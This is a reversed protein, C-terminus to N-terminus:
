VVSNVDGTQDQALLSPQGTADVVNRWFTSDLSIVKAGSTVASLPVHTFRGLWLGVVMGTKGAMAAHVAEEALQGCFIADAANAPAARIIYSPDIYKLNIGLEALEKQFVGKLFLGIDALKINGAADREGTAQLHRQGAGEAVVVLAHDRRSLRDRLFQLIGRQGQLDFPLEPVLVLNVERAALTASATIFGSHRGMLRVLGLGNPAGRAEVHAAKIADAAISVATQYGFTREIYLLDNDITKPMGIVAVELGQRGIESFLAHAGRMTGDGGICFMVNIKHRQITEVMEEMTPNGRSSGLFTGGMLHVDRVDGPSLEEPPFAPEAFLGQFGYRFGIIRRCGYSYWLQMVLGRIVNNMGPCLGGCTVIGAVVQEGRFYNVQRPGAAEFWYQPQSGDPNYIVRAGSETFDAINDDPVTSLKLPSPSTPKGLTPIRFDFSM